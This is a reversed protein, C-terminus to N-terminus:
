NRLALNLAKGGFFYSLLCLISCSILVALGSVWLGKAIFAYTIGTQVFVSILSLGLWLGQRNLALLLREFINNVSCVIACAANILILWAVDTGGLGYIEAIFGSALGISGALAFTTLMNKRILGLLEAWVVEESGSAIVDSINKLAVGGWSTAPLLMLNLWQGAVAVVGVGSSGYTSHVLYITCLWNVGGSVAMAVVSPWARAFYLGVVRWAHQDNAQYVFPERNTSRVKIAMLVPPFISGVFLLAFAGHLGYYLVVPYVLACIVVAVFTTVKAVFSFEGAGYLFGLGVGGVIQGAVVGGGVLMFVSFQAASSDLTFVYLGWLILISFASLLLALVFSFGAHAHYAGRAVVRDASLITSNNALVQAFPTAVAAATNVLTSYVGLASAGALRSILLSTIFGAGRTALSAFLM